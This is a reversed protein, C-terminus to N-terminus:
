ESRASLEDRRRLLFGELALSDVFPRALNGVPCAGGGLTLTAGPVFADKEDLMDSGPPFAVYSLFHDHEDRVYEVLEDILDIQGQRYDESM